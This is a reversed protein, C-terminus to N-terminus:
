LPLHVGACDPDFGPPAQEMLISLIGTAKTDQALCFLVVMNADNLVAGRRLLLQVVETHRAATAAELPTILYEPDSLVGPRVVARASPDRGAGIQRLVEAGDRLAAAESLTFDAPAALARYGALSALLVIAAGVLWALAPGVLAVVLFWPTQHHSTRPAGYYGSPM